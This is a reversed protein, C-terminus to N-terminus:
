RSFTMLEKVLERSLNSTELVTPQEKLFLNHEWFLVRNWSGGSSIRLLIWRAEGGRRQWHDRHHYHDGGYWCGRQQGRRVFPVLIEVQRRRHCFFLQSQEISKLKPTNLNCWTSFTKIQSGSGKLTKWALSEGIERMAVDIAMLFEKFDLYDNRDLDFIRFVHCTILTANGSCWDGSKSGNKFRRRRCLNNM